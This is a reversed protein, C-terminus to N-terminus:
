GHHRGNNHHPAPPRHGHAPRPRVQHPAPRSHRRLHHPHRTRHSAVASVASVAPVPATSRTVAAVPERPASASASPTARRATEASATSGDHDAAGALLLSSVSILAAVVVAAVIRHRQTSWGTIRPLPALATTAALISPDSALRAVVGADAPREAPDRHVMREVLAKLVPPVDDPLPAVEGYARAALTETMTAGTLPRLGTLSEYAVLGLAYIDSRPTAGEGVAQEPSLYDVTGIITGTLTLPDLDARRAIGFDLLMAEGSPTLVINGPKVDRHVVGTRHAHALADAIEALFRAVREPPLPGDRLVERITRGEALQMAVFPHPEGQIMEEGYDYVMAINPHHMESAIRAEGRLRAAAIPDSCPRLRKLAVRRGLVLDEASFVQSTGGVGLREILRYRGAVTQVTDM